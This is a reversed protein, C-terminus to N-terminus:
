RGTFREGDRRKRWVGAGDEVWMEQRYRIPGACLLFPRVATLEQSLTRLAIAGPAPGAGAFDQFTDFLGEIARMRGAEENTLGATFRDFYRNQPDDSRRRPGEVVNWVPWMAATQLELAEAVDLPPLVNHSARRKPNEARIRDVLRDLGLLNRDALSLYQRVAVPAEGLETAVLQDVMRNWVDRLLSFPIIHHWAM